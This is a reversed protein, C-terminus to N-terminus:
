HYVLLQDLELIDASSNAASGTRVASQANRGATLQMLRLKMKMWRQLDTSPSTRTARGIARWLYKLRVALVQQQPNQRMRSVVESPTLAGYGTTGRSTTRNQEQVGKSLPSM